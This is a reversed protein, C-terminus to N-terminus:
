GLDELRRENLWAAFGGADKGLAAQQAAYPDYLSGLHRRLAESTYGEQAGLATAVMHLTNARAADGQMLGQLVSQLKQDPMGELNSPINGYNGSGMIESAAVLDSWYQSPQSLDPNSALWEPFRTTKGDLFGGSLLYNGYAPKFGYRRNRWQVPDFVDDGLESARIADWQEAPTKNFLDPSTVGTRYTQSPSGVHVDATRSWRHSAMPTKPNYSFNVDNVEYVKIDGEGMDMVQSLKGIYEFNDGLKSYVERTSDDIWIQSGDEKQDYVFTLNGTNWKSYISQWQSYNESNRDPTLKTGQLFGTARTVDERTVSSGDPTRYQSEIKKTVEDIKEEVRSDVTVAPKSAPRVPIESTESFVQGDGRVGTWLGHTAVDELKEAASSRATGQTQTDEGGYGFIQDWGWNFAGAVGGAITGLTSRTTGTRDQFEPEWSERRIEPNAIVVKSTREADPYRQQDRLLLADLEADTYGAINAGTGSAEGERLWWRGVKNLRDMENSLKEKNIGYTRSYNDLATNYFESGYIPKLHAIAANMALEDESPGYDLMMAKVLSDSATQDAAMDALMPSNTASLVKKYTDIEWNNELGAQGSIEYEAYPDTEPQGTAGISIIDVGSSFGQTVLDPLQGFMEPLTFGRAM